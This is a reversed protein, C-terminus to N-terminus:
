RRVAGILRKFIMIVACVVAVSVSFSLYPNGTIFTWLSTITDTMTTLDTTVSLGADTGEASASVAPMASCLSLAMSFAMIKSLSSKKKKKQNQVVECEVETVDNKKNKKKFFLM